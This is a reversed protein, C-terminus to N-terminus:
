AIKKDHAKWNTASPFAGSEPAVLQSMALFQISYLKKLARGQLFLKTQQSICFIHIIYRRQLRPWQACDFHLSAIEKFLLCIAENWKTKNTCSFM